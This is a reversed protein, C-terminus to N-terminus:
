ALEGDVHYGRRFRGSWGGERGGSGIVTFYKGIKKKQALCESNPTTRRRACPAIAYKPAGVVNRKKLPFPVTPDGDDRSIWKSSSTKCTAHHTAQKKLTFCTEEILQQLAIFRHQHM